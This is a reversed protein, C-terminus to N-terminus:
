IYTLYSLLKLIFRKGPCLPEHRYDWCVPLGLYASWSTLLDLGDLGVHYFGTEVLFVFILQTHHHMDTIGSVWSASALSDSPGLPCLKCYALITGGCELRAVSCSEMEFVFVFCLLVFFSDRRLCFVNRDKGDKEVQLRLIGTLIHM